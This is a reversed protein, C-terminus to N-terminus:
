AVAQSFFLSSCLLIWLCMQVDLAQMKFALIGITLVKLLPYDNLVINVYGLYPIFGRAVGVIDEHQLWLQSPMTLHGYAFQLVRHATPIDRGHIKFVVIDGIEINPKHNDVLLIDGRRYSPVFSGSLVVVIPSEGGTLGVVGKWFVFISLILMGVRLAEKAVQRWGIQGSRMKKEQTPADDDLNCKSRDTRQRPAFFAQIKDWNLQVFGFKAMAFALVVVYGITAALTHVLRWHMAFWIMKFAFLGMLGKFIMGIPRFFGCRSKYEYHYHRRPTQNPCCYEPGHFASAQQPRVPQSPPVYGM